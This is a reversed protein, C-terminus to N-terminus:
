PVSGSTLAYECTESRKEGNAVCIMGAVTWSAGVDEVPEQHVLRSPADAFLLRCPPARIMDESRARDKTVREDGRM